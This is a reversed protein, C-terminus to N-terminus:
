LFVKFSLDQFVRFSVSRCVRFSGSIVKVGQVFSGLHLSRVRFSLCHFFSVSLIVIFSLGQVVKFYLGQVLGLVVRFCGLVGKFWRSLGLVIRFSLGQVLSGCHFVKFWLDVVFSRSRGNFFSRSGVRFHGQFVSLHGQFFSWSRGYHGQFSIGKYHVVKLSHSHIFSGSGQFVMISRSCGVRFSGSLEQVIRSFGHVVFGLSGNVFSSLRFIRFSLGQVLSGLRIIRFSRSSDKVVMFLPGKVVRGQLSLGLPFIKFSAYVVRLSGQFARFPGSPFIRFSHDQFLRSSLGLLFVRFHDQFVMFSLGQISGSPGKFVRFSNGQFFSGSVIRFSRSPGKFSRSHRFPLGQLSLGQVVILSLDQVLGLVVRFSRSVCKFSGQFLEFSHGQFVFSSYSQVIRLSWSCFARFSGQFTKFSLDLIFRFCDRLFVQFFSGSIIRLFKSPGLFFSWSLGQVALRSLYIKFSGSLGKIVTFLRLHGLVGSHFVRFSRGQFFPGQFVSKIVRFSGSLFFKFSGQVVKFVQVSSGSRIISFLRVQFYSGSGVRFRGIKIKLSRRGHVRLSGSHVRFLRDQFIRFLLGQVFSRLRFVRFLGGQVFSGLLDHFVKSSRLSGVRFSRDQFFSESLHSFSGLLFIRLSGQFARFSLDQIFSRSVVKFFSGSGFVRLSRSYGHFFSGSDVRFHGQSVKLHGQFVRFSLDRVVKFSCDKFFRFSLGSPDKFVKFSKSLCVQFSGSLGYVVKFAPISSGLRIVQVFSGSHVVKFSLDQIVKFSLGQVVKFSLSQVIRFSLGQGISGLLGQFISGSLCVRFSRMHRM